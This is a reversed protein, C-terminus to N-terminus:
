LKNLISKIRSNRTQRVNDQFAFSFKATEAEPNHAIPESALEIEQASAEVKEAEVEVNEVPTEKSLDESSGMKEQIMEKIENVASAFEEKTVYEAEVKEDAPAEEDAAAEVEEDSPAEEESESADKMEAIIGEEEVVLTQGNDMEYEGVPLAVDGDDTVIFVAAGPVFQDDTKVETGNSLKEVAFEVAVEEQTQESLEIGLVNKIESLIETAKM